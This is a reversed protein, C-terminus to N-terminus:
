LYFYDKGNDKIKNGLKSTEYIAVITEWHIAYTCNKMLTKVLHQM